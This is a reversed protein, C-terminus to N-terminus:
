SPLLGCADLLQRADDAGSAHGCVTLRAGRIDEPSLEFVTLEQGTKPDGGLMGAERKV